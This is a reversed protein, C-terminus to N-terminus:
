TVPLRLKERDLNAVSLEGNLAFIKLLSSRSIEYREAKADIFKLDRKNIKLNIQETAENM